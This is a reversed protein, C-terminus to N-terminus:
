NEEETTKAGMSSREQETINFQESILNWTTLEQCAQADPDTVVSGRAGGEQVSWADGNITDSLPFQNWNVGMWHTKSQCVFSVAVHLSISSTLLRSTTWAGRGAGEEGMPRILSWSSWSRCRHRYFWCQCHLAEQAKPPDSLSEYTESSREAAKVSLNFLFVWVSLLNIKVPESGSGIRILRNWTPM